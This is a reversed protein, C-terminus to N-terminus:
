GGAASRRWSGCRGCARRPMRALVRESGPVQAQSLFAGLDRQDRSFFLDLASRVAPLVTSFNAPQEAALRQKHGCSHWCSHDSLAELSSRREELATRPVGLFTALREATGAPESTTDEFSVVLLQPGYAASWLRLKAAVLSNALYGKCGRRNPFVPQIWCSELACQGEEPLPRPAVPWPPSWRMYNEWVNVPSIDWQQAFRAALDLAASKRPHPTVTSSANSPWCSSLLAAMEDQVAEEFTRPECRFSRMREAAERRVPDALVAAPLRPLLCQRRNNIYASFARDTPERLTLIIRVRPLVGERPPFTLPLARLARPSGFYDPTADTVWGNQLMRAMKAQRSFSALCALAPSSANLACDSHKGDFFHLEKNGLAEPGAHEASVLGLVRLLIAHLQSTGAKQLGIVFVAGQEIPPIM